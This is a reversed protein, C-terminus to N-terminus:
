KTRQSALRVALADQGIISATISPCAQTTGNGHCERAMDGGGWNEEAAQHQGTNICAPGAMLRALSRHDSVQSQAASSVKIGPIVDCSLSLFVIVWVAQQYVLTQFYILRSLM